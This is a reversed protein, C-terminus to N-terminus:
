WSSNCSGSVLWNQRLTYGVVYPHRMKTGSLFGVSLRGSSMASTRAKALAFLQVQIRNSLSSSGLSSKIGTYSCLSYFPSQCPCRMEELWGTVKEPFGTGKGQQLFQWFFICSFSLVPRRNSLVGTFLPFGSASGGGFWRAYCVWRVLIGLEGLDVAKELVCKRFM